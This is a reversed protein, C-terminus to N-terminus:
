NVGAAKNIVAQIEAKPTIGTKQWVVQGNKYLLLAPIAEVHLEQALQKNDFFEIKVVKLSTNNERALSDVVALPFHLPLLPM